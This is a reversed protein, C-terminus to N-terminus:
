DVSCAPGEAGVVVLEHHLQGHEGAVGCVVRDQKIVVSRSGGITLLQLPAAGQRNVANRIRVGLQQVHVDPMCISTGWGEAVSVHASVVAVLPAVLGDLLGARVETRLTNVPANVIRLVHVDGDFDHEVFQPESAM